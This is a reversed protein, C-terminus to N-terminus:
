DHDWRWHKTSSSFITLEPPVTPHNSLISSFFKTVFHSAQFAESELCGAKHPTCGLGKERLVTYKVLDGNRLPKLLRVRKSITIILHIVFGEGELTDYKVM